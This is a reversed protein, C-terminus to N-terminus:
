QSKGVLSHLTAGELEDSNPQFVSGIVVGEVSIWRLGTPTFTQVQYTGLERKVYTLPIELTKSLIPIQIELIEGNSLQLDKEKLVLEISHRATQSNYVPIKGSIQAMMKKSDKLVTVLDGVSVQSFVDWSVDVEALWEDTTELHMIPNGQRVWEGIEILNKTVIGDFPATVTKYGLMLVQMSYKNKLKQIDLKLQDLRLKEQELNEDTYAEPNKKRREYRKRHNEMQLTQKKIEIETNELEKPLTGSDIQFLIQGKKVIQGLNTARKTLLGSTQAAIKSVRKPRFKGYAEYFSNKIKSRLVLQTNESFSISIFLFFLLKM